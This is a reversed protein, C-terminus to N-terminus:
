RQRYLPNYFGYDDYMLSNKVNRYEFKLVSNESIKYDVAVRSLSLGTMDDQLRNSFDKGFVSSAYPSYSLSIDASVNIKDNVKYNLSNIYSTVSVNGYSTNMMSINFSHNMSFNNPNFIGLILNNTSVNVDKKNWDDNTYQAHSNAFVLTLLVLTLLKIKM